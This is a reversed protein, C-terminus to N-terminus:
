GGAFMIGFIVVPAAEALALLGILARMWRGKFRRWLIACLVLSVGIEVPGVFNGYHRWDWYSVPSHFVWTTLPWFHARADDNHLTFDFVLHLLAAACLVTAWRSKAILAVALAIGWLVFSNDVRFIAQWSDSFYMRGFVDRAPTGVVNLQWGVLLYLSLDPILGGALASATVRSEDPRGFVALGMILHSPTNM